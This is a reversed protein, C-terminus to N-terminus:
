LDDDGHIDDNDDIDYNNYGVDDNDIMIVMKVIMMIITATIM